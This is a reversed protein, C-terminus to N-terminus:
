ALRSLLKEITNISYSRESGEELRSVSLIKDADTALEAMRVRHEYPAFTRGGKHPPHAAPVLLVRDLQVTAAATRAIELHANHIPDFTGGFIAIRM